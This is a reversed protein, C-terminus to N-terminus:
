DCAYVVSLEVPNSGLARPLGLPCELWSLSMELVPSKEEVCEVATLPLSTLKGELVCCVAM